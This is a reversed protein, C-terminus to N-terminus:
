RIFLFTIYGIYLLILIFGDRRTINFRKGTFSVVMLVLTALLAAFIDFRVVEDIAVPKILATIGLIGLFDFINSGIINGVAIGTNRKSLAVLSVTLEPLSTGIAVLTFGILEPAIGLLSAITHAGEVVWRGGFFVGVIGGVIMVFATIFTLVPHGYDEDLSQKRHLMYYLWLLFLAFLVFGEAQNIGSFSKDGFVPFLIFISAVAVALVNIPFDKFFWERSITIPYLIAALGLIVLINFINSGIITTLGINNGDFVSAINISFEPISTGIGVVVVGIFWSSVEFINAVSVAGRVLFKAGKILIYFGLGFLILSNIIEISM